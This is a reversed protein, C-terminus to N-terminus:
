GTSGGAGHGGGLGGSYPTQMSSDPEPITHNQTGVGHQMNVYGYQPQGRFHQGQRPQGQLPQLAPNHNMVLNPNEWGQGQQGSWMQYAQQAEHAQYRKQDMQGQHSGPHSFGQQTEYGGSGSNGMPGIPQRQQPYQGYVPGTNSSPGARYGQDELPQSPDGQVPYHSESLPSSHRGDKGDSRSGDVRALFRSPTTQYPTNMSARLRFDIARRDGQTRRIDGLYRGFELYATEGLTKGGHADFEILALATQCANRIQRGNWRSYKHERFHQEAFDVISSADYAIKRNPPRITGQLPPM